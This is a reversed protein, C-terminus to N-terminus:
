NLKIFKLALGTFWLNSYGAGGLYGTGGPQPATNDCKYEDFYSWNSSSPSQFITRSAYCVSYNSYTSYATFGQMWMESNLNVTTHSENWGKWSTWYASGRWLVRFRLSPTTGYQVTTYPWFGHVRPNYVYNETGYRLGGWEGNALPSSWVSPFGVKYHISDPYIWAASKSLPADSRLSAESGKYDGTKLDYSVDVKKARMPNGRAILSNRLVNLTAPDMHRQPGEGVVELPSVVSAESESIDEYEIKGNSFEEGAPELPQTLRPLGNPDSSRPDAAQAIPSDPSQNCGMSLLALSWLIGAAIKQSLPLIAHRGSNHGMYM